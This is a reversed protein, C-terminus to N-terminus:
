QREHPEKRKSGTLMHYQNKTWINIVVQQKEKNFMAYYIFTEDLEIACMPNNYKNKIISINKRVAEHVEKFENEPIPVQKKEICKEKYDKYIAIYVPARHFLHTIIYFLKKLLKSIKGLLKM